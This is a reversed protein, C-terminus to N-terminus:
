GKELRVKESAAVDVLQELGGEVDGVDVGSLGEVFEKEYAAGM